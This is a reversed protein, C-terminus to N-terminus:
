VAPVVTDNAERNVLARPLQVEDPPRRGLPANWAAEVNVRRPCEQEGGVLVRVSDNGEADILLRALERCRPTHGVCWGRDTDLKAEGYGLVKGKGISGSCISM